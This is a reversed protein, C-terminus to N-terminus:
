NCMRSRRLLDLFAFFIKVVTGTSCPLSYVSCIASVGIRFAYAGMTLDSQISINGQQVVVGELEALIAENQDGERLASTRETYFGPCLVIDQLFKQLLLICMQIYYGYM